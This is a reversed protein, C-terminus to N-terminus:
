KPVNKAVSPSSGVNYVFRGKMISFHGPASCFYSYSVGPALQTTSFQVTSKEGGGVIKTSAIIRKDGPVQYNTIAPHFPVFDLPAESWDLANFM